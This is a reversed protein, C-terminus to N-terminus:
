LEDSEEKDVMRIGLNRLASIILDQWESNIRYRLPLRNFKPSVDQGLALLLRREEQPLWSRLIIVGGTEWVAQTPSDCILDLGYLLRRVDRSLVPAENKLTNMTIAGFWYKTPATQFRQSLTRCLFLDGPPTILIKSLEEFRIWRFFQLPSVQALPYYVEFNIFNSASPRLRQRAKSLSSETWARLDKPSDGLWDEYSQWWTEDKLIPEPLAKRDVYRMFGSLKVDAGLISSLDATAAGGVVFVKEKEPPQILRVPTPLWYGNEVEMFDRLDELIELIRRVRDPHIDGEAEQELTSPRKEQSLNLNPWLPSLQRRVSNTLRTIYIPEFNTNPMSTCALNFLTKRLYEAIVLDFPETHVLSSNIRNLQLIKKIAEQRSITSSYM